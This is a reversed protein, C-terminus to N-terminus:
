SKRTFKEYMIIQFCKKLYDQLDVCEDFVHAVAIIIAKNFDCVVTRPSKVRKKIQALFDIIRQADQKATVM